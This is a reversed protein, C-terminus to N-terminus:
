LDGVRSRGLVSGAQVTHIAAGTELDNNQFLSNAGRLGNLESQLRAMLRASQGHWTGLVESLGSEVAWGSMGKLGTAQTGGSAGTLPADTSILAHGGVSGGVSGGLAGGGSGGSGDTMCSAKSTEPLQHQEMYTAAKKKDTASSAFVGGGVVAGGGGGDAAKASALVTHPEAGGTPVGSTM